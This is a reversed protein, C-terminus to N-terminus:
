PALPEAWNWIDRSGMGLGLVRAPYHTVISTLPAKMWSGMEAEFVVKSSQSPFPFM